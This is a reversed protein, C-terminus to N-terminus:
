LFRRMLRYSRGGRVMKEPGFLNSLNKENKKPEEIEGKNNLILCESSYLRQLKVVTRTPSRESKDIGYALKMERVKGENAEMDVFESPLLYKFKDTWEIKGFRSYLHKETDHGRINSKRVLHLAVDYM